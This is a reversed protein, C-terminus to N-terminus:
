QHKKIPPLPLFNLIEQLKYTLIRICELQNQKPEYALLQSVLASITKLKSASFNMPANKSNYLVQKIKQLVKSQNSFTPKIGSNWSKDAVDNKRPNMVIKSDHIESFLILYIHGLIQAEQCVIQGNGLKSFEQINKLSVQTEEDFYTVQSVEGLPKVALGLTVSRNQETKFELEKGDPSKHLPSTYASVIEQDQSFETLLAISKKM